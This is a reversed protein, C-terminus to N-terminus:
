WLGSTKQQKPKSPSVSFSEDVKGGDKTTGSVRTDIRVPKGETELQKHREKVVEKAKDIQAPAGAPKADELAKKIEKEVGEKIRDCQRKQGEKGGAPEPAGPVKVPQVNVNVKPNELPAPAKKEPNAPKAKDDAM